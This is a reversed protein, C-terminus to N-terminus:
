FQSDIGAFQRYARWIGYAVLVGGATWRLWEWTNFFDCLFLVGMGVYVIIMVIGFITRMIKSGSNRNEEREM